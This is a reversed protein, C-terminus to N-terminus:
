ALENLTIVVCRLRRVVDDLVTRTPDGIAFFRPEVLAALDVLREDSLVAAFVPEIGAPSWRVWRRATRPSCGSPGSWPGTGCRSPRTAGAGPTGSNHVVVGAKTTGQVYGGGTDAAVVTGDAM